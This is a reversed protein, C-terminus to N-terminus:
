SIEIVIRKRNLCFYFDMEEDMDKINNFHLDFSHIANPPIIIRHILHPYTTGNPSSISCETTNNIVINGDSMNKIDVILSITQDKKSVSAVCFEFDNFKILDSVEAFNYEPLGLLKRLLIDVDTYPNVKHLPKSGISLRMKNRLWASNINARHNWDKIEKYLSHRGKKYDPYHTRLCSCICLNGNCVCKEGRSNCDSKQFSKCNRKFHLLIWHEFSINSFAIGISNESAKKFANEFILENGDRDRDFVVYCEDYAETQKRSIAEDILGLPDQRTGEEIDLIVVKIAYESISNIDEAIAKFYREETQGECAIFLSKKLKRM